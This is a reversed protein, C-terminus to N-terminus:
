LCEWLFELIAQDPVETEPIDSNPRFQVLNVWFPVFGPIKWILHWYMKARLALIYQFRIQFLGPNTGNPPWYNSGSKAWIRDAQLCACHDTSTRTSVDPGPFGEGCTVTVSATSSYVGEFSRPWVCPHCIQTRIPHFLCWVTIIRIASKNLNTKQVKKSM